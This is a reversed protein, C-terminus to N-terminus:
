LHSQIESIDDSIMLRQVEPVQRLELLVNQRRNAPMSVRFSFRQVQRKHDYIYNKLRVRAGRQRLLGELKEHTLESDMPLDIQVLKSWRSPILQDLSGLGMLALVVMLTTVAAVQFMGFGCALGIAATCWLSAATTVGRIEGGARIIVGAGLFGIGGMIGYAIRAPDVRLSIMQSDGYVQAFHNSVIMATASGVAVLLQTRFGASRGHHEREAGVVAGLVGAVVLRLVSEWPWNQPNWDGQALAVGGEIQALIGDM